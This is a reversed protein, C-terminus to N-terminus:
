RVFRVYTMGSRAPLYQENGDFVVRLRYRVGPPLRPPAKWRVIRGTTPAFRCASTRTRAITGHKDLRMLRFRLCVPEVPWRARAWFEPESGYRYTLDTANPLRLPRPSIVPIELRYGVSVEAGTWQRVDDAGPLLRFTSNAPIAASFIGPVPGTYIVESPLGVSERVVVVDPIAESATLTFDRGRGKPAIPRDVRISTSVTILDAERTADAVSPQTLALLAATLGVVTSLAALRRTM